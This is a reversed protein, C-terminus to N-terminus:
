TATTNSDTSLYPDALTLRGASKPLAGDPHAEDWARERLVLYEFNEYATANRKRRYIAIAPEILSWYRGPSAIEFYVDEDIFKKKVYTGINEYYDALVLEKHIARSPAFDDQLEARYQPDKLKDGLASSVFEFAEAVAPTSHSRIALVAQLQNSRRMHRLQVIAAIATGLIVLFTGDTGVTNWFELTTHM